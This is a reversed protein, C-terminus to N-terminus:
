DCVGLDQFEGVGYYQPVDDEGVFDMLDTLAEYFKKEHIKYGVGQNDAGDELQSYIEKCVYHIILRESLQSPLGDPEDSNATLDVPKRYFHVTLTKAASPIGQYYLNTGQVVVTSVSGAQTLNKNAARKLFLAFSYLDGGHPGHIQNGSSDVVMAVNRQYTAPLSVYPNSTSTEVTSMSYLDPLPPSTQGNPLRLGGSIATIAANIRGKITAGSSGYYASDQIIGQDGPSDGCLTTMLGSLTPM